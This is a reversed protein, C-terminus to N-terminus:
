VGQGRAQESHSVRKKWDSWALRLAIMDSGAVVVERGSGLAAVADPVPTCNRRPYTISQTHIQRDSLIRCRYAPCTGGGVAMVGNVLMQRLIQLNVGRDEVVVQTGDAAGLLQGAADHVPVPAADDAAPCSYLRYGEVWVATSAM